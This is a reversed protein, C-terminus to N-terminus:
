LEVEIIYSIGGARCAEVVDVINAYDAPDVGSLIIRMFFPMGGKPFTIAAKVAPSTSNKYCDSFSVDAFAGDDVGEQIVCTSAYDLLRKRIIPTSTNTEMVRVYIYDRYQQDTWGAPREIGYTGRGWLLLWEGEAVGVDMQTLLFARFRRLYEIPNAIAGRNMDNVRVPENYPRRYDYDDSTLGFLVETADNAAPDSFTVAATGTITLYTGDHSAAGAFVANIAAMVEALTTAAPTGGRCDIVQPTGDDIALRINYDTSLDFNGSGDQNSTYSPDYDTAAPDGIFEKNLAEEPNFMPLYRYLLTVASTAM